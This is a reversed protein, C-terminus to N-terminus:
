GSVGNETLRLGRMSPSFVFYDTHEGLPGEDRLPERPDVSGEIVFYASTLVTKLEPLIKKM